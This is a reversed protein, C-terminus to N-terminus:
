EINIITKITVKVPHDYLSRAYYGTDWAKQSAELIGRSIKHQLDTMTTQTCLERKLIQELYSLADDPNSAKKFYCFGLATAEYHKHIRGDCLHTYVPFVIVKFSVTEKKTKAM